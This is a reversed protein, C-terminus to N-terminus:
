QFSRIFYNADESKKVKEDFNTAETWSWAEYIRFLMCNPFTSKWWVHYKRFKKDYLFCIVNIKTSLHNMETEILM